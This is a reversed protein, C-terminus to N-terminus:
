RPEPEPSPSPQTVTVTATKSESRNYVDKCTLTYSLSSASTSEVTIAETGNTSKSGSWDGSATCTSTYGATSWELTITGGSSPISDPSASFSKFIPESDNLCAKYKDWDPLFKECECQKQEEGTLGGCSDGGGSSPPSSFIGEDLLKEIYLAIAAGIAKGIGELNIIIELDALEVRAVAEGKIGGPHTIERKKCSGDTNREVCKSEDVFPGETSKKAAEQNESIRALLADDLMLLQGLLTNEPNFSALWADWNGYKLPNSFYQRPNVVDSLTYHRNGVDLRISQLLAAKLAPPANLQEVEGFVEKLAAATADTLFKKWDGVIRNCIDQGNIKLYDPCDVKLKALFEQLKTMIKRVLFMKLHETATDYIIGPISAEGSLPVNVTPVAQVRPVYLGPGPANLVILVLM